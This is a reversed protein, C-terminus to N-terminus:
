VAFQRHHRYHWPQKYAPLSTADTPRWIYVTTSADNHVETTKSGSCAIRGTCSSQAVNRHMCHERRPVTQNTNIKVTMCQSLFTAAETPSLNEALHRYESTISRGWLPSMLRHHADSTQRDRVDPRLRSCLPRPLSFNACLYGVDCTVRVGSELDFPWSASQPAYKPPRGEQM